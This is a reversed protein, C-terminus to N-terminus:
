TLLGRLQLCLGPPITLLPAFLVRAPLIVYRLLLLEVSFQYNDVRRTSTRPHSGLLVSALELPTILLCVTLKLILQM